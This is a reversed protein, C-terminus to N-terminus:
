KLLNSNSVTCNIISQETVSLLPNVRKYLIRNMIETVSEDPRNMIHFTAWRCGNQSHLIRRTMPKTQGLYPGNILEIGKHTRVTVDGEFVVFPHETNHINSVVLQNPGFTVERIYIGNVFRHKTDMDGLECSEIIKKEIKDVYHMWDDIPMENKHGGLSGIIELANFLSHPTITPNDLTEM